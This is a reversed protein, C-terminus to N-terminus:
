RSFHYAIASHKKNFSSKVNSTNNVVSENDCLIVTTPQYKSIPIEFMQLKFILHEVDEICHKFAIFELSFSSTEVTQQSKSMWKFPARNVFLVYCSHSRRTVKNARHSADVFASTVLSRGRPRPM